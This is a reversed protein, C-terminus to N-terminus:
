RYVVLMLFLYLIAEIVYRAVTQSHAGERTLAGEDRRSM